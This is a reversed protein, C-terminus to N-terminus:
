ISFLVLLLILWCFPLYCRFVSYAGIRFDPSLFSCLVGGQCTFGLSIFVWYSSFRMRLDATRLVYCGKDCEVGFLHFSRLPLALCVLLPPFTFISVDRYVFVFDM